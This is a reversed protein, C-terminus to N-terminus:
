PRVGRVELDLATALRSAGGCAQVALDAAARLRDAADTLEGAEVALAAAELQETSLALIGAFATITRSTFATAAPTM